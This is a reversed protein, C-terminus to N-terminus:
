VRSSQKREKESNKLEPNLESDIAAYRCSPRYWELYKRWMPVGEKLM